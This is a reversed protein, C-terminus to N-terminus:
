KFKMRTPLKHKLQVIGSLVTGGMVIILLLKTTTCLTFHCRFYSQSSGVHRQHYVVNIIEVKGGRFHVFFFIFYFFYKNYLVSISEEFFFIDSM